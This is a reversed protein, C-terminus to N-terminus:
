YDAESIGLFSVILWSLITMLNSLYLPLEGIILQVRALHDELVVTRRRKHM